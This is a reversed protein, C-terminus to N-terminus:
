RAMLEAATPAAMDSLVEELAAHLDRLGDLDMAMSALVIFRGDDIQKVVDKGNSTWFLRQERM